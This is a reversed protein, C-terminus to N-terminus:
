GGQLDTLMANIKGAQQRVYDGREAHAIERELWKTETWGRPRSLIPGVPYSPWHGTSTCVAWIDIAMQLKKRGLTMDAESIEIITLAYPEDNEQNIYYHFRRGANEPDLIDLGREHMAAQFDWGLVSPRDEVVHPACSMATSKYDVVIHPADYWDIMTRLWIDDEQWALVIEGQGRAFFDYGADGLQQRAAKEMAYARAMHHPLIAVKGAVLAEGRFEQAAKSRWADFDGVAIQKGRGILLAHAADGIAQASDYKDPEHMAPPRLRPHALRAHAPSQDLIIKGISQSFSPEPCPDAHYDVASMDTFIGPARIM